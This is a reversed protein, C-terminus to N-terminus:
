IWWRCLCSKAYQYLHMLMGINDIILIDVEKQETAYNSYRVFSKSLQNEIQKIRGDNIEHPAIIVKDNFVKDNILPMLVKDDDIWSSGIVMVKEGQCFKAVLDIPKAQKSNTMVRDYRTDGSVISEINIANLLQESAKDQVFITKFDRLIGRFFGGYWKFFSQNKRFIGSVLHIPVGNSNLSSILNAWFEYKVIYVSTPKLFQILLNANSKTDIPLYFTLDALEYDKRIEYGSPSFFSVVLQCEEKEKIAEMIPRGQEFEGLSACHFWYLNATSREFSKLQNKWNKRGNVWLRAKENFLSAIGIGLRYLLIGPTYFVKM